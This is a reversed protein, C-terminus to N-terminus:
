NSKSKIEARRDQVSTSVLDNALVQALDALAGVPKTPAHTGKPANAKLASV